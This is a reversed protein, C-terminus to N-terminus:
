QCSKMYNLVFDDFNICFDREILDYYKIKKHHNDEAHIICYCKFVMNEYNYKDNLAYYALASYYYFDELLYSFKLYNCIQIGKQCLDIVKNFQGNIGYYDALYYLCLLIIRDNHGSVIGKQKALFNELLTIVKEKEPFNKIPIISSLIIVETSSLISKEYISDYDVLDKIKNIFNLQSIAGNFYDHLMVTHEYILRNNNEFFHNSNITQLLTKYTEDDHNVVANHFKNVLETERLKTSEFELVLHEPKFGLRKALQNFINQPIMYEGNLYRRFQRLSIIDDTLEEQTLNRSSRLMDFYHALEKTYNDIRM